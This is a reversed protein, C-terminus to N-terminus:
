EFGAKKRVDYTRRQSWKEIFQTLEPDAPEPLVVKLKVYLDGSSGQKPETIGKGKLRLVTGTNSGKPVKLAVTGDLTPVNITAGM